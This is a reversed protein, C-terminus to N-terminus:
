DKHVKVLKPGTASLNSNYKSAADRMVSIREEELQQM